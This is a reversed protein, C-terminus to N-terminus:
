TCRQVSLLRSHNDSYDWAAPGHPDWWPKVPSCCPRCKPGPMNYPGCLTLLHGTEWIRGVKETVWIPDVNLQQRSDRYLFKHFIHGDAYLLNSFRSFHYLRWLHTMNNLMRHSHLLHQSVAFFYFSNGRLSFYRRDTKAITLSAPM